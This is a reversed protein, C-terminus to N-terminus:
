CDTFMGDIGRSSATIGFEAGGVASKGNENRREAATGSNRQVMAAEWRSAGGARRGRVMSAWHVCCPLRTAWLVLDEDEFAVGFELLVVGLDLGVRALQAVQKVIGARPATLQLFDAVKQVLPRGLIYPLAADPAHLHRQLNDLSQNLLTRAVQGEIGARHQANQPGNEGGVIHGHDLFGHRGEFCQARVLIGGRESGVLVVDLLILLNHLEIGL